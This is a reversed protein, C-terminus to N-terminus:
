SQLVPEAPLTAPEENPRVRLPEYAVAWATMVLGAGILYIIYGPIFRLNVEGVMWDGLVKLTEGGWRTVVAGALLWPIPRLGSMMGLGVAAIAIGSFFVVPNRYFIDLSGGATVALGAVAGTVMCCNCGSAVATGALAIATPGPKPNPFALWFAYALAAGFILYLAAGAVQPALWPLRSVSMMMPPTLAAALGLTAFAFASFAAARRNIQLFASFVLVIGILLFLSHTIKSTMPMGAQTFLKASSAGAGCACAMLVATGALSRRGPTLTVSM